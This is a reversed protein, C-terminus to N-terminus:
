EQAPDSEPTPELVSKVAHRTASLGALQGSWGCECRQQFMLPAIAERSMNESFRVASISKSCRPCNFRLVHAFQQNTRTQIKQTEM